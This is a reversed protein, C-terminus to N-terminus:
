AFPKKPKHILMERMCKGENKKSIKQSNKRKKGARDKQSM